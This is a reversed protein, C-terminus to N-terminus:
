ALSLHHPEFCPRGPFALLSACRPYVSSTLGHHMQWARCPWSVSAVPFSCVSSVSCFVRIVKLMNFVILWMLFYVSLFIGYIVYSFLTDM